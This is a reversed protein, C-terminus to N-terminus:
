RSWAWTSEWETTPSIEEDFGIIKVRGGAAREDDSGFSCGAMLMLMGVLWQVRLSM